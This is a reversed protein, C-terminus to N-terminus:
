KLSQNRPESNCLSTHHKKKCKRCRFKSPCQSIRHRALCNFCLSKEKVIDLRKKYDTVADCNHSPHDKKCFVCQPKKHDTNGQKRSRNGSSAVHFAAATSKLMSNHPDHPGIELIRIEKLIAAMLDPLNWASNSHERALNWQVEVPLKEMVVPILLDGYSHKSKGLSSLGRIHTEVTDCFTQMSNLSNSPSPIELLAQTHAKVIKHHQGYRDELIAIAHHYNADTLPLGAITCTRAADGM